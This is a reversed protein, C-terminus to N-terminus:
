YNYVTKIKYLFIGTGYSYYHRVLETPYGDDDYTYNFVYPLATPFNKFYRIQQWTLNNKSLNKLFLDPWNMHAYPNIEFDYSYKGTELDGEINNSEDAVRNGSEYRVRYDIYKNAPNMQYHIDMGYKGDIGSPRHSITATTAEGNEHQVLHSLDGDANYVMDLTSLLMNKDDFKLVRMLKGDAQYVFKEVQAIYPKNEANKQYHQIMYLNPTGNYLYETKSFAVYKDGVFKYNVESMLKKAQKKGGLKYVKNLEFNKKELNLEDTIGWKTISFQYKEALTSVPVKNVGARLPFDRTSLQGAANWSKIKLMAPISDYVIDGVQIVTQIQIDILNGPTEDGNGNGDDDKPISFAGEPYGYSAPLADAAVPVVEVPLEVMPLKPLAFGLALPMRVMQAASSGSHPAAYLVKNEADVVFLKVIKFNGPSLAIPETAYKNNFSLAMKKNAIVTDNQANIVSFFAYLAQVPANTGPLSEVIIRWENSHPISIPPPNGPIPKVIPKDCGILLIALTFFFLTLHSFLHKM